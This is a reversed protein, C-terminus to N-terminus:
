FQGAKRQYGLKKFLEIDYKGKIEWPAPENTSLRMSNEGKIYPKYNFLQM